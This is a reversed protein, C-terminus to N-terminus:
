VRWADFWSPFIRGICGTAVTKWCPASKTSWSIGYVNCSVYFSEQGERCSFFFRRKKFFSGSTFRRCYRAFGKCRWLPIQAISCSRSFTSNWWYIFPCEKYRNKAKISYFENLLNGAPISVPFFIANKRGKLTSTSLIILIRPSDISLLHKELRGPGGCFLRSGTQPTKGVCYNRKSKGHLYWEGSGM